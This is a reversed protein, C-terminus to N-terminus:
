SVAFVANCYDVRLMVFAHVLTKIFDTDLPVDSEYTRRMEAEEENSFCFAVQTMVPPRSCVTDASGPPWM